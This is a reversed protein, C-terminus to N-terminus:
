NKRKEEKREEQSVTQYFVDMLCYGEVIFRGDALAIGSRVKSVLYDILVLSKFSLIFDDDPTFYFLFFPCCVFLTNNQPLRM